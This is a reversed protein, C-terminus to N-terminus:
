VFNHDGDLTLLIVQPPRHICVTLDEVDQHLTMAIFAGRLLEETFQELGGTKGWSDDNGVFESAIPRSFFLQNWANFVSLMFTQIISRLIRVPGGSDPLPTHPAELGRSVSLAKQRGKFRYAAVKM